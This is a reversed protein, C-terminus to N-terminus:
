PRFWGPVGHTEGSPPTGGDRDDKPANDEKCKQLKSGFESVASKANNFYANANKVTPKEKAASLKKGLNGVLVELDPVRSHPDGQAKLQNIELKTRNIEMQLPVVETANAKDLASRARDLDNLADNYVREALACPNDAM